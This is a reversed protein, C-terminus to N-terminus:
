HLLLVSKLLVRDSGAREQYQQMLEVPSVEGTQLVWECIETQLINPIVKTTIEEIAENTNKPDQGFVEVYHQEAHGRPKLSVNYKQRIIDWTERHFKEAYL